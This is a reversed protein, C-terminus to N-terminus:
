AICRRLAFRPMAVSQRPPPLPTANATAIYRILADLLSRTWPFPRCAIPHPGMAFWLSHSGCSRILADADDAGAGHAVPDRLDERLCPEVHPQM